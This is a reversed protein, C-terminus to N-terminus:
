SFDVGTCGPNWHWSFLWSIKTNYYNAFWDITHPGSAEEILDFCAKMTQWDDIDLLRSIYDARQIETRPVWELEIHHDLCLKYIRIAIHHLDKRM